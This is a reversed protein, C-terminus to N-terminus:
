ACSPRLRRHFGMKKLIFLTLERLRFTLSLTGASIRKKPCELGETRQNVSDRQGPRSPVHSYTCCSSRWLGAFRLEFFLFEEVVSHITGGGGEEDWIANPQTEHNINVTTDPPEVTPSAYGLVILKDVGRSPRASLCCHVPSSKNRVFVFVIESFLACLKIWVSSWTWSFCFVALKLGLTSQRHRGLSM